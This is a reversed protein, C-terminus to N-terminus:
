SSDDPFFPIENSPSSGDAQGTPMDTPTNEQHIHCQLACDVVSPTQNHYPYTTRFQILFCVSCDMSLLGPLMM